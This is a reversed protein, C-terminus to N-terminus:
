QDAEDTSDHERNCERRRSRLRKCRWRCRDRNGARDDNSPGELVMWQSDRINVPPCRRIAQGRRRSNDFAEIWLISSIWSHSIWCRLSPQVQDIKTILRVDFQIVQLLAASIRQHSGRQPHTVITHPLLNPLHHFAISRTGLTMGFQNDRSHGPTLKKIGASAAACEVHANAIGATRRVPIATRHSARHRM